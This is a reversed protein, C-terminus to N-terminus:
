VIEKRAHGIFVYQTSEDGYEDVLQRREYKAVHTPKEAIDVLVVSDETDVVEGGAPGGHLTHAMM